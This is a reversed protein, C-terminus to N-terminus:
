KLKHRLREFHEMSIAVHALAQEESINANKMEMVKRAEDITRKWQAYKYALLVVLMVLGDLTKFLDIITEM